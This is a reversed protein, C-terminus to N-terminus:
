LMGGRGSVPPQWQKLTKSEDSYYRNKVLEALCLRCFKKVGNTGRETIIEHVPVSRACRRCFWPSVIEPM